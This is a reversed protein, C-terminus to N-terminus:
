KFQFKLIEEESEIEELTKLKGEEFMGIFPHTLILDNM